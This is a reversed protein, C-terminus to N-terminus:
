GNSALPGLKSTGQPRLVLRIAHVVRGEGFLRVVGWLSGMGRMFHMSAITFPVTFVYRWDKEDTAIRLSLALAAFSYLVAIAVFLWGLPRWLLGLLGTALLGLVLCAPALHRWRVPMLDARAFALVTWVGDAWNHRWFSVYDSRAQYDAFAGPALMIKGGALALRRKFEMDQIRTLRENFLGIRNFLERRCCFFAVTDVLQPENPRAFRYKLNGVGFKQTLAKVISRGAITNDRPTIRLTGGVDDAGYNLLVGVCHTIYDRACVTHADLRMIIDGKALRIGLNLAYPTVRDPNDVLRIFSHQAAYNRVLERTGDDSMGDLVLIELRDLPFGNDLVSQLCSAIFRVENRCPIIVSVLPWNEGVRAM